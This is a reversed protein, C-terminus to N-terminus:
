NNGLKEELEMIQEFAKDYVKTLEEHRTIQQRYQADLKQFKERDAYLSPDALQAELENKEKTVKSLDEELKEFAKQQKQHEKRLNRLEDDSVNKVVPAKVAQKVVPAPNPKDEKAKAEKEAREKLFVNWEDYTGIFEKIKADEIWWIKNAIESIFYRDHSVTIFTGDYKKLAEVLM